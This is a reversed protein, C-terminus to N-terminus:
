QHGMAPHDNVELPSAEQHFVWALSEVPSGMVMTITGEQFVMELYEVLFVLMQDEGQFVEEQDEVLFEPDTLTGAQVPLGKPEIPVFQLETLALSALHRWLPDM